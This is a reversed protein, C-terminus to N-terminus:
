DGVLRYLTYVALVGVKPRSFQQPSYYNSNDRRAAAMRPARRSDDDHPRALDDSTSLLRDSCARHGDGRWWAERRLHTHNVILLHWREHAGVSRGPLTDASANGLDQSDGATPGVSAKSTAM